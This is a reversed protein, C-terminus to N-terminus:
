LLLEFICYYCGTVAVSIRKRDEIMKDLQQQLDNLTSQVIVTTQKDNNNGNNNENNNDIVEQRIQQLSTLLDSIKKNLQNELLLLLIFM